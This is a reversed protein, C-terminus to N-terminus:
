ESSIVAPVVVRVGFIYPKWAAPAAGITVPWTTGSGDVM